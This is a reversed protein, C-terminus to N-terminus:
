PCYELIRGESLKALWAKDSPVLMMPRNVVIMAETSYPLIPILTMYSFTSLGYQLAGSNIEGLPRIM